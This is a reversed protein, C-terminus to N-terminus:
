QVEYEVVERRLDAKGEGVAHAKPETRPCLADHLQRGGEVLYGLDSNRFGERFSPTFSRGAAFFIRQHGLEKGCREPLESVM